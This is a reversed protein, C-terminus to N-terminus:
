VRWLNWIIGGAHRGIEAVGRPSRPRTTGRTAGGKGTMGGVGQSRLRVVRERRGAIGRFGEITCGLSKAAPLAYGPTGGADRLVEELLGLRIRGLDRVREYVFRKAFRKHQLDALRAADREAEAEAINEARKEHSREVAALGRARNKVQQLRDWVTMGGHERDSTKREM